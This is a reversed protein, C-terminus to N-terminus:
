SPRPRRAEAAGPSPPTLSLTAPLHEPRDVDCALVPDDTLLAHLSLGVLRSVRAELKPLSARGSLLALVTAPGLRAALRLPSKRDRTALDIWPLLTRLAQARAVALNGGTVDTGALRVWTRPLDPFAREYVDRAVVPYVLDHARGAADVFRDVAAGTLWPLDASVILVREDPDDSCAAGVGLALSDVLRPGGPVVRDVRRRMAADLEGVWHVEGVRRADRLADLVYAGLPRGKLPVLAKAPAGVSRALADGADGGALVVVPLPGDPADGASSADSRHIADTV